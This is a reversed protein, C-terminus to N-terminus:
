KPPTLKNIKKLVKICLDVNEKKFGWLNWDRNLAKLIKNKMELGGNKFGISYVDDLQDKLTKM